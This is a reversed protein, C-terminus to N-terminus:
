ITRRRRDGTVSTTEGARKKTGSYINRRGGLLQKHRGAATCLFEERGCDCRQREIEIFHLSIARLVGLDRATNM